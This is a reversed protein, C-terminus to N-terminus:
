CVIFQVPHPLFKDHDSKLCRANAQVSYLWSFGWDPNDTESSSNLCLVYWIHLPISSVWGHCKQNFTWSSHWCIQINMSDDGSPRGSPATHDKLLCSHSHQGMLYVDREDMLSFTGCHSNLNFPTGAVAYV